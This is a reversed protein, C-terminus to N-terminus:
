QPLFRKNERGKRKARCRAERLLTCGVKGYKFLTEPDSLMLLLTWWSAFPPRPPFM